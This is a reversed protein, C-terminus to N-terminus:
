HRYRLMLVNMLLLIHLWSLNLLLDVIIVSVLLLYVHQETLALIWSWHLNSQSVKSNNVLVISEQHFSKKLNTTKIKWAVNWSIGIIMSERSTKQCFVSGLPSVQVLFKNHQLISVLRQVINWTKNHVFTSCICWNGRIVWFPADVFTPPLQFLLYWWM